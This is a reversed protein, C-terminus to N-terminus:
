ATSVAAILLRQPPHESTAWIPRGYECNMPPLAPDDFGSPPMPSTWSTLRPNSTRSRRLRSGSLLIPRDVSRPPALEGGIIYASFVVRLSKYPRGDRGGDPITFSDAAIPSGVEVLYGTEELVEREVAETLSEEYEVGGGPMSWGADRGEGNWWTLSSVNSNKDSQDARTRPLVRTTTM